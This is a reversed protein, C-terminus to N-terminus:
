KSFLYELAFSLVLLFILFESRGADRVKKEGERAPNVAEKKGQPEDSRCNSFQSVAFFVPFRVILRAECSDRGSPSM